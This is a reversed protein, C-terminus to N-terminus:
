LKSILVSVFVTIMGKENKGEPNIRLLYGDSFLYRYNIGVNVMEAIEIGAGTILGVATKNSGGKATTGTGDIISNFDDESLYSNIYLGASLFPKVPSNTEIKKKVVGSLDFIMTTIDLNNANDIKNIFSLKMKGFQMASEFHLDWKSFPYEMGAGGMFVPYHKVSWETGDEFSKNNLSIEGRVGYKTQAFGISWICISAIVLATKILKM